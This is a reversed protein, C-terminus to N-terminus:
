KRCRSMNPSLGEPRVALDASKIGGDLKIEQLHIDALKREGHFNIIRAPFKIGRFSEWGEFQRTRTAAPLSADALLISAVKLPLFTVPDLTVETRRSVDGRRSITIVNASSATFINASNRDALWFSSDIGGLYGRALALEEGALEVFGKDPLIEWGSVVNFYLAYSDGPGVQDLRLVNPRIWRTRKYVEGHPKGDENWSEARVCQDFDQIAAIKDSGGLATQMKHFLQIGDQGQCTASFSVLLLAALAVLPGSVIFEAFKRFTLCFRLGGFSKLKM